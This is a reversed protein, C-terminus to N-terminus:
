KVGADIDYVVTVDATVVIEQPVVPTTDSTDAAMARSKFMVPEFTPATGEDLSILRGLSVGSAGAMLDAKSRANAVAAVLAAGEAKKRDSLDFTLDNVDTAGAKTAQDIIVGGKTLDRVTVQISNSVQYGTLVAPSKKYDYQPQVTYYQTQIDKDAVGGSHLAALVAKARTANASVADAQSRSITTVGLTAKLIDPKVKTEAHGHATIGESQMVLRDGGRIPAASAGLGTTMVAAAGFFASIHSVRM